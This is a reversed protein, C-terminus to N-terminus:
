RRFDPIKSCKEGSDLLCTHTQHNSPSVLSWVLYIVIHLMISSASPQAPFIIFEIFRKLHGGCDLIISMEFELLHTQKNELPQKWAQSWVTLPTEMGTHISWTGELILVVIGSVQYWRDEHGRITSITVTM